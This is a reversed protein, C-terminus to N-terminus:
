QKVEGTRTEGARRVSFWVQCDFPVKDSPRAGAAQLRSFFPLEGAKLVLVKEVSAFELRLGAAEFARRLEDHISAKEGLIKVWGNIDGGRPQGTTRNWSNSRLAASSLREAMTPDRAGDGFLRGWNLTGFKWLGGDHRLVRDLLAAIAPAQEALPLNCNSRHRVVGRNIENEFVTWTIRCSDWNVSYDSDGNASRGSEVWPAAPTQASACPTMWLLPFVLLLRCSQNM